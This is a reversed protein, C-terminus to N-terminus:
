FDTYDDDMDEKSIHSEVEKFDVIKGEKLLDDESDLSEKVLKINDLKSLILNVNDSLLDLKSVIKQNSLDKKVLEIIYPTLRRSKAKENLLDYIEKPMAEANLVMRPKRKDNSM